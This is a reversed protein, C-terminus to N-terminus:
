STTQNTFRVTRLRVARDDDKSNSNGKCEICDDGKTM